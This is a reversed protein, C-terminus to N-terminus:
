RVYISIKMSSSSSMSLLLQNGEPDYATYGEDSSEVTYGFGPLADVYAQFSTYDANSIYVTCLNINDQTDWELEGFGPTPIRLGYPLRTMGADPDETPAETPAATPAETLAPAPATPSCAALCLILAMCLAFLASKNMM